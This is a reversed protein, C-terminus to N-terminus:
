DNEQMKRGFVKIAKEEAKEFLESRIERDVSPEILRKYGDEISEELLQYENGLTINKFNRQNICKLKMKQKNESYSKLVFM